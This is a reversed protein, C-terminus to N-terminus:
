FRKPFSRVGMRSLERADAEASVSEDYPGALVRVLGDASSDLVEVVFGLVRNVVPITMRHVAM